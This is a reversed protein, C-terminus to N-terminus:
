ALHSILQGNLSIEYKLFRGIWSVRRLQQDCSKLLTVNYMVVHAQELTDLNRQPMSSYISVAFLNIFIGLRM